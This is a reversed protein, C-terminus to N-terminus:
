SRGVENYIKIAKHISGKSMEYDILHNWSVSCSINKSAMRVIDIAKESKNDKLLSITNEALKLPDQLWVLEKELRSKETPDLDKTIRESANSFRSPVVNRRSKKETGGYGPRSPLDSWPELSPSAETSQRRAAGQSGHRSSAHKHTAQSIRVAAHYRRRASIPYRRNALAPSYRQLYPLQPWGHLVDGFITRICRSMCARCDLM